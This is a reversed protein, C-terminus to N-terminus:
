SWRHPLEVHGDGVLERELDAVGDDLVQVRVAQQAGGHVLDRVEPGIRHLLDLLRQLMM